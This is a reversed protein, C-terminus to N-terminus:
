KKKGEKRLVVENRYRVGKGKYPEPPRISRIKAAFQGVVQKDYGEIILETPKSSAVTVGSPIQVFIEHSFGLFLRVFGKEVTSRFGVGEIDLAISFGNSVGEVMNKILTRTLGFQARSFSSDDVASVSIQSGDYSISVFRSFSNSLQGKKGKVSLSLGNLTVEVTEPVKVPNKGIRSM